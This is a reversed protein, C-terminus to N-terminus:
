PTQNRFWDRIDAFVDNQTVLAFRGQIASSNAYPVPVVKGPQLRCLLDTDDMNVLVRCALPRHEYISCGGDKLFICPHDYGYPQELDSGDALTRPRLPKHLPRGTKKAILKAETEPITVAIHCCHSCRKRCASFPALATSWSAAVHRLMMVRNMKPTGPVQSSALLGGLERAVTSVAPGSLEVNRKASEEAHPLHALLHPALDAPAMAALTNQETLLRSDPLSVTGPGEM